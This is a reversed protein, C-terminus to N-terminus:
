FWSRLAVGLANRGVNVTMDRGSRKMAKGAAVLAIALPLVGLGVVLGTFAVKGSVSYDRRLLDFERRSDYTSLRLQAGSVGRAIASGLFVLLGVPVVAFSAGGGASLARGRRVLDRGEPTLERSGKGSRPPTVPAPPTHVEVRVQPPAVGAPPPSAPPATAEASVTTSTRRREVQALHDDVRTRLSVGRDPYDIDIRARLDVLLQWARDLYVVRQTQDYAGVNAVSLGFVAQLRLEAHEPISLLERRAREYADIAVMFQGREFAARAHELEQTAGAADASGDRMPASSVDVRTPQGSSSVDSHAAAPGALALSTVCACLPRYLVSLHNM